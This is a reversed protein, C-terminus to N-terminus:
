PAINTFYGAGRCTQVRGAGLPRRGIRERRLTSRESPETDLRRWTTTRRNIGDHKVTQQSPRTPAPLGTRAAPAHCQQRAAALRVGVLQGAGQLLLRGGDGGEAALEAGRPGQPETAARLPRPAQLRAARPGALAPRSGKCRCARPRALEKLYTHLGRQQQAITLSNQQPLVRKFPAPMLLPTESGCNYCRILGAIGDCTTLGHLVSRLILLLVKLSWLRIVGGYSVLGCASAAGAVLLAAAAGAPGGRPRLGALVTVAGTLLRAAACLGLVRGRYLEADLIGLPLVPFRHSRARCLRQAPGLRCTAGGKLLHM